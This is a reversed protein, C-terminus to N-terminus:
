AKSELQNEQRNKSIRLTPPLYQSDLARTDKRIELILMNHSTLVFFPPILPQKLMCAHLLHHINSHWLKLRPNRNRDVKKCSIKSSRTLIKLGLNRRSLQLTILRTFKPVSKLRM